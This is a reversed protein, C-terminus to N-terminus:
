DEINILELYITTGYTAAPAISFDVVFHVFFPDDPNDLPINAPITEVDTGSDELWAM